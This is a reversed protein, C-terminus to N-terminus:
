FKEEPESFSYNELNDIMYEEFDLEGEYTVRWDDFAENLREPILYHNDDDDIKFVFRM